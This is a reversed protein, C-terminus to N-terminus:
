YFVIRTSDTNNFKDQMSANAPVDNIGPKIDEGVDYPTLYGFGNYNGTEHLAQNLLAQYGARRDENCTSYQSMSNTLKKLTEISITKRKM